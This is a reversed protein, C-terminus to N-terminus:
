KKKSLGANNCKNCGVKKSLHDNPRVEFKGHIPCIINVKVNNNIYEVDCYLYKKGHIKESELIFEEKTKKKSM